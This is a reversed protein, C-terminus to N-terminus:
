ASGTADDPGIMLALNVDDLAALADAYEPDMEVAKEFSERAERLRGQGRLVLGLNHYAEDICGEECRTGARHAAEAERLKGQRALAAGLYIYGTAETPDSDIAKQYWTEAQHYDGRYRYLHGMRESHLRAM